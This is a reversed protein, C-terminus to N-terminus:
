PASQATDIRSWSGSAPTTSCWTASLWSRGSSSTASRAFWSPPASSPGAGSRARTSSTSSGPTFSRSCCATSSGPSSASASFGGSTSHRLRRLIRDRTDAAAARLSRDRRREPVVLDGDVGGDRRRDHGGDAPQRPLRQRQRARRRLRRDVPRVDHGPGAGPRRVGAVLRPQQRQRRRGCVLSDGLHEEIMAGVVTALPLAVLLTLAFMGALVLPAGNVRRIGDRWASLPRMLHLVRLDAPPGAALDALHAVLAPGRGRAAAVADPQQEHLQRRAASRAGSRSRRTLARVPTDAEFLRWPDRGDWRWRLEQGNELVVRVDVPFTGAGERRVVVSTRYTSPAPREGEGVHGEIEPIDSTFTDIKYDFTNASRYVQDFFWTLDQGSVESAVAFFDQPSRTSSPTARTTPRFSASCRRGASSASSRTCGCRPRATASRATGHGALLAMDRNGACRPQRCRPLWGASQRRRRADAAPGQLGVPHLRRLIARTYYQPGFFQELARATSYTTLGEDMWAHETENTAVVGYWFQHGTEHVVVDEPEAVGRPALWSTGATILTPYEMGGAGSQWAPDVITLNPYPYAGFWEGFYRLAARAAQFHRDAQGAHEPQLLLRLDVPPLGPHTFRETRELYDPSTTWAFDHVDEAYYHHTTTRDAEDRRDREVGTAGVIWGTPM